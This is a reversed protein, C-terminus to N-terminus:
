VVLVPASVTTLGNPSFFDGEEIDYNATQRALQSVTCCGCFTSALCDEYPIEEPINNRARVLRQVKMMTMISYITYIFNVFNGLASSDKSPDTPALITSLVAFIITVYILNRFTKTWEEMPAEDGMWNLKLRTMVQGLLVLPCCCAYVFSPHFIGYRTCAFIDDKWRGVSIPTHPNFPVKFSQDKKVGGAPVIAHFVVGNYETSFKYGEPMSEPAIIEVMVTDTLIEAHPISEYTPTQNM